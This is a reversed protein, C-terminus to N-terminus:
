KEEVVFQQRMHIEASWNTTTKKKVIGKQQNFTKFSHFWRIHSLRLVVNDYFHRKYIISKTLLMANNNALCLVTGCIRFIWIRVNMPLNKIGFHKSKGDLSKMTSFPFIWNQRNWEVWKRLSVGDCFWYNNGWTQKVHLNSLPIHYLEEVRAYYWSTFVKSLYYKCRLYCWDM